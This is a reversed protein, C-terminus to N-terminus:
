LFNHFVFCLITYYLYLDNRPRGNGPLACVYVCLSVYFKVKLCFLGLYSVCSIDIM